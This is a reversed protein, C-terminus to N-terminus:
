HPQCPKTTPQNQQLPIEIVFETGKGLVSNYTLFGHHKEVIIQYSISLGLGTGAGVPKTTFFPNFIREKLEDSIGGANDAIRIIASPPTAPNKSNLQPKIETTIQLTPLFGASLKIKEELADIANSIINM